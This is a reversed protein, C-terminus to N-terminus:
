PCPPSAKRRGRPRLANASFRGNEGHTASLESPESPESASPSLLGVSRQIPRFVGCPYQISNITNKTSAAPVSVMWHVTTSCYTTSPESVSGVRHRCCFRVGLRVGMKEDPGCSRVKAPMSHVFRWFMIRGSSNSCARLKTMKM